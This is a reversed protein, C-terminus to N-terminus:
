NLFKNDFTCVLSSKYFLFLLLISVEGFIGNKLEVFYEYLGMIGTGTLGQARHLPCLSSYSWTKTMCLKHEPPSLSLELTLGPLTKPYM